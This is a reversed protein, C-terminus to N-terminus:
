NRHVDVKIIWSWHASDNCNQHGTIMQMFIRFHYLIMVRIIVFGRIEFFTFHEHSPFFSNCKRRQRSLVKYGTDLFLPFHEPVSGGPNYGRQDAGTPQLRCEAQGVLVLFLFLVLFFYFFLIFFLIFNLANKPYTKLPNIFNQINKQVNPSCFYGM